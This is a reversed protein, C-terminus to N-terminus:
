EDGDLPNQARCCTYNYRQTSSPGAQLAFHALAQYTLPCNIPILELNRIDTGGTAQYPTQYNLCRLVNGGNVLFTVCAYSYSITTTAFTLAYSSIAAGIDLCSMTTILPMDVAYNGTYPVPSATRTTSATPQTNVFQCDYDYNAGAISPSATPTITNINLLYKFKLYALARGNTAAGSVGEIRCNAVISPLTTQYPFPVTPSSTYLGSFRRRCNDNTLTVANCTETYVPLVRVAYSTATPAAGTVPAPAPTATNSARMTITGGNYIPCFLSAALPNWGSQRGSVLLEGGISQLFSFRVTQTTTVYMTVKFGVDFIATATPGNTIIGVTPSATPSTVASVTMPMSNTNLVGGFFLRTLSGAMNTAQSPADWRVSQTNRLRRIYGQMQNQNANATGGTGWQFSLTDLANFSRISNWGKGFQFTGSATDYFMASWVGSNVKFELTSGTTSVSVGYIIGVDYNGADTITFVNSALTVGPSGSTGVLTLPITTITAPIAGGAQLNFRTIGLDDTKMLSGWGELSTISLYQTAGIEAVMTFDFYDGAVCSLYIMRINMYQPNQNATKSLAVVSEIAGNKRVRLTWGTATAGSTITIHLNVLHNGDAAVTLRNTSMDLSPATATYKRAAHLKVVTDITYM